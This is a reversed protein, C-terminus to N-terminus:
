ISMQTKKIKYSFFKNFEEYIIYFVISVYFITKNCECSLVFVKMTINM